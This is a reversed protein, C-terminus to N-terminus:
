ANRASGLVRDDGPGGILTDIANDSRLTDDGEGGSFTLPVPLAGTSIVRDNGAGGFVHVGGTPKFMGLVVDNLTVEVAGGARPKVVVTDGSATGGVALVTKGADAPDPQVDLVKVELSSAASGVGADDDTATFEVRYLGLDVPTFAALLGTGSAVVTTGRLVRWTVAHTDLVGPDMVSAGFQRAQGRVGTAPGSVAITPAVNAVAVDFRAAGDLHDQTDTVTVTVAYTGNDAYVHSLDFTKDANLSLPQVGSGDGYDVTATWADNGGDAFSGSRTFAAGERASGGGGADVRPAAPGVTGTLPAPVQDFEVIAYDPPWAGSHVQDVDNWDGPNSPFQGTSYHWNM